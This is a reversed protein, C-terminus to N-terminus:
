GKVLDKYPKDGPSLLSRLLKYTVSEIVSLFVLQKKENMAILNAKFFHNLHKVYM